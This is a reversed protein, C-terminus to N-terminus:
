KFSYFRVGCHIIISDNISTIHLVSDLHDDSITVNNGEQIFKCKPFISAIYPEEYGNISVTCTTDSCFEFQSYGYDLPNIECFYIKGIVKHSENGRTPENQNCGVLCLVAATFLLLKRM